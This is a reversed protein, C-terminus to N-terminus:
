LVIGAGIGILVLGGIVEVWRGVKQGISKGFCIGLVVSLATFLLVSLARPAIANWDQGAMSLSIGIALADISTAIGGLIINKFSNLDHAEEEKGSLAEWIMSGGVYLLLGFGIWHSIKEVLGAFVGGFAWGGLLFLTQIIAFSLAITSVSKADIKKLSLSSCLSVAFCDTCVSLGFLIIELLLM